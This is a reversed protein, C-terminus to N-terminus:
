GAVCIEEGMAAACAAEDTAAEDCFHQRCELSDGSMADMGVSPFAAAAANCAPVAVDDGEGYTAHFPDHCNVLLCSCYASVPDGGSDAAATEDHGAETEHSHGTETATAHETEGETEHAHETSAADDSGGDDGDCAFPALAALLILGHVRQM